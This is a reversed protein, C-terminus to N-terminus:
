IRRDSLREEIKERHKVNTIDSLFSVMHGVYLSHVCVNYTIYNLVYKCYLIYHSIFKYLM